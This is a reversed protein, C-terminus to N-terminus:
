SLGVMFQFYSSIKKKKSFFFFCFAVVATKLIEALAGWLILLLTISERKRLNAEEFLFFCLYLLGLKLIM